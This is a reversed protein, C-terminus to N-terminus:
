KGDESFNCFAMREMKASTVFRWEQGEKNYDCYAM